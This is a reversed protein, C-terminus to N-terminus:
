AFGDWEPRKGQGLSAASYEIILQKRELPIKDVATVESKGLEDGPSVDIGFLGPFEAGAIRRDDDGHQVLAHIEGM